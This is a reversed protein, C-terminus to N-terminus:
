NCETIYTEIAVVLAVVSKDWDVIEGSVRESEGDSESNWDRLWAEWVQVFHEGEVDNRLPFCSLGHANM